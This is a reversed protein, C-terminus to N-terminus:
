YSLAHHRQFCCSHLPVPSTLFTMWSSHANLAPRSSHGKGILLRFLPPLFKPSFLLMALCLAWFSCTHLCLCPSPMRFSIPSSICVSTLGPPGAPWLALLISKTRLVFVVKWFIKLLTVACWKWLSPELHCNLSVSFLPLGTGNEVYGLSLLFHWRSLAVYSDLLSQFKLVCIWQEQM